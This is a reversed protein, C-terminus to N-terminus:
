RRPPAEHTVWGFYAAALAILGHLWVDKAYLPMLGFGTQTAPLLGALALLAYLIAVIRAYFLAAGRGRAAILGWLGCLAHLGSLLPNVPFLGFLMDDGPGLMRPAPVPGVAASLNGALAAGAEPHALVPIFGAAGIAVFVLGLILAFSRTTM